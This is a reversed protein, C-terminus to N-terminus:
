LTRPPRTNGMPNTKPMIDAPQKKRRGGVDVIETTFTQNGYLARFLVNLWSSREDKAIQPTFFVAGFSGKSSLQAFIHPITEWLHTEQMFAGDHDEHRSAADQGISGISAQDQRRERLVRVRGTSGFARTPPM